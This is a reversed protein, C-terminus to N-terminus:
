PTVAFVDDTALWRAGVHGEITAVLRECFAWGEDSLDIHHTVFGTPEARDALGTRRMNLHEVLQLLTKTTGAFQAGNPKRWRIPDCHANVVFLGPVPNVHARPGFASVARYGRAALVPLLEPAVHNWPPVLIPLFRSEFRDELVERGRQLDELVAAKGRHLGLEWAGQGKGREAHNIHAYGHQAVRVHSASSVAAVLTDKMLAPIVALLLGTASCMDVLRELKCGAAVADDDRWWLDACRGEAVWADLEADLLTWPDTQTDPTALHPM